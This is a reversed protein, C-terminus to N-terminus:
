HKGGTSSLVRKSRSIHHNKRGADKEGDRRIIISEREEDKVSYDGYLDNSNLIFNPDFVFALYLKCKDSDSSEIRAKHTAMIPNGVLLQDSGGKIRKKAGLKMNLKQTSALNKKVQPTQKRAVLMKKGIKSDKTYNKVLKVSGTRSKESERKSHYRSKILPSPNKTGIKYNKDYSQQIHQYLLSGAPLFIKCILLARDHWDKSKLSREASSSSSLFRLETAVSFYCGALVCINELTKSVTIEHKIDFPVTWESLLVPKMTMIDGIGYNNVWDEGIYIRMKKNLKKSIIKDLALSIRTFTGVLKNEARKKKINLTYHSIILVTNILLEKMRRLASQSHKLAKEHNQVQSFIACIRLHTLSLYHFLKLCDVSKECKKLLSKCIKICNELYNLAQTSTQLRYFCLATNHMVTLSLYPNVIKYSKEIYDECNQLCTLAEFYNENLIQETADSLLNYENLKSKFTNM